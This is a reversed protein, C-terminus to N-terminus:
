IELDVPTDIAVAKLKIYQSTDSGAVQGQTLTYSNGESDENERLKMTGEATCNNIACEFKL